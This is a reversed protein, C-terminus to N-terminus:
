GDAWAIVTGKSGDISVVMDNSIEEFASKVNTVCPVCLERCLIAMHCLRGGTCCVVGAANTLSPLLDPTAHRAILIFGSSSRELDLLTDILLARGKSIGPSAPVGQLNKFLLKILKDV